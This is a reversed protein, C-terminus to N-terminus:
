GAGVHAVKEWARFGALFRWLGQFRYFLVVQRFGLNEVFAFLLLVM